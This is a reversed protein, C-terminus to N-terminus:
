KMVSLTASAAFVALVDEVLDEIAVLEVDVLVAEVLASVFFSPTPDEDDDSSVVKIDVAVELKFTEKETCLMFDVSVSSVLKTDVVANVIVVSLAADLL